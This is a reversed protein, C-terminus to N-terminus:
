SPPFTFSFLDSPAHIHAHYRHADINSASPYSCRPVSHVVTDKRIAFRCQHSQTRTRVRFQFSPTITPIIARKSCVRIKGGYVIGLHDNGMKYFSFKWWVITVLALCLRSSDVKFPSFCRLPSLYIPTIQSIKLTM